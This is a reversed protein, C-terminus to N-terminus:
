VRNVTAEPSAGFAILKPTAWNRARMNKSPSHATAIIYAASSNGASRRPKTIPVIWAKELRPDM